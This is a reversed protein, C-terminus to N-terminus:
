ARRGLYGLVRTARDAGAAVEVAPGCIGEMRISEGMVATSRELLDLEADSFPAEIGAARAVDWRHAVMDFVYFTLLTEGVTTPGFFGDYTTAAFSPEALAERVRDAHAAWAAAPDTLPAGEGDAVGGDDGLDLHSGLFQRQTEVLHAVVDRAEWGECPSAASWDPVEALVARLREDAQAYATTVDTETTEM